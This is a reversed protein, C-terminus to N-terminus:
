IDSETWIIRYTHTQGAVLTAGNFNVALIQDPGRLTVSKDLLSGSGWPMLERGADRVVGAFAGPAALPSAWRVININGVIQGVTPNATYHGAIATATDQSDLCLVSPMIFTGGTNKSSRKLLLFQQSGAATNTAGLLISYVRVVKAASGAIEIMDTPTAPSTFLASVLFTATGQRLIPRGITTYQTARFANNAVTLHDYSAGSKIIAM